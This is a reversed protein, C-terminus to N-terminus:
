QGTVSSKIPRFYTGGFSGAQLVEKATLNPKFEPYDAFVLKGHKDRKIEHHKPLKNPTKLGSETAKNSTKTNKTDTSCKSKRPAKLESTQTKSDRKHLSTKETKKRKSPPKNATSNDSIGRKRSSM